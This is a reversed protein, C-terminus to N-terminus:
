RAAADLVRVRDAVLRREGVNRYWVAVRVGSEIAHTDGEFVTNHRLSMEFGIPNRESGVAISEGARWKTVTGTVIHPRDQRLSLGVFMVSKDAVLSLGVFAVAFVMLSAPRM